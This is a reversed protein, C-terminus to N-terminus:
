AGTSGRSGSPRDQARCLVEGAQSSSSPCVLIRCEESSRLVLPQPTGEKGATFRWCHGHAAWCQRSGEEGIYSRGCSMWSQREQELVM